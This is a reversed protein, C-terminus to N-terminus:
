TRSKVILFAGLMMIIIPYFPVLPFYPMFSDIFNIIEFGFLLEYVQPSWASGFSSGILGIVVALIGAVSLLSKGIAGTNSQTTTDQM